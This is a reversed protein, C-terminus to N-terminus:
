WGHLGGAIKYAKGEFKGGSHPITFIVEIAPVKKTPHIDVPIGRGNDEVSVSGDGHMVVRIGDAFGGQAEDCANDIMEQIIHNPSETRTYMDPRKQIPAIGELVQIEAANYSPTTM